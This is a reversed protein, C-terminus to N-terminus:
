RRHAPAPLLPPRENARATRQLEIERILAAPAIASVPVYGSEAGCFGNFVGMTEGTAVIKNISALPTGVIEVGRVLEEKGTKVDIRYVLRPIGKFAQYGYSSTNTNGGTIDKILLAYPKNAKKAEAILMQRLRKDPVRKTSHVFLNAMRAMPTRHGQARGHGNSRAFGEVPKRSLLYNRLVGDEILPVRQGAVGQDDYRYHGNLPEGEFAEVTPDDVISLFPPLVRKGTQGKFTRGENDDHLREGELRHGVTEHFLVGTAEPALIAPGTYPDIVPATRLALLEGIMEDAAARLTEVSPLGEETAAYFSRSNDLLEGDEARTLAQLHVAFLAAETVLRTGESTTLTRVEKDATIRIESDFIAEEKTMAASLERAVEKWREEDFAFPIPPQVWSVAEEKSFSDVPEDREQTYVRQAKGRLWSSLAAKYKQDTLLWLATRLADPHVDQPADTSAFYTPGAGDSFFFNQDVVGGSSDSAYSGVRVDVHLKAERRDRDEFVAGYRGVIGHGRVDKLQYAIFYPAEHDAMRLKEMSHSLEAEMAGLIRLRPDADPEEPASPEVVLPPGEVGPATPPAALAATAALCAVSLTSLFLALSSSRNIPEM